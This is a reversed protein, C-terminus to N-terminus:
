GPQLSGDRTSSITKLSRIGGSPRRSTSLATFCNDVFLHAGNVFSAEDSALFLAARGSRGARM